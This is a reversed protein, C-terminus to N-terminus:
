AGEVLASLLAVGLPVTALFTTAAVVILDFM